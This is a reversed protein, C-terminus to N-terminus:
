GFAPQAFRKLQELEKKHYEIMAAEHKASAESAKAIRNQVSAGGGMQLAARANFTGAVSTTVASRSAMPDAGPMQRAPAAINTAAEARKKAANAVAADRAKEADALEKQAAAIKVSMVDNVPNQSDALAKQRAIRQAEIAPNSSTFPVPSANAEDQMTKDIEKAWKNANENEEKSAYPDGTGAIGESLIKRYWPDSFLTKKWQNWITTMWKLADGWSSSFEAIADIMYSGINSTIGSWVSLFGQWTEELWTTVRTWELKLAATVVAMAAAIDGVALADAIGGWATQADSVVTSVMARIGDVYGGIASAAARVPETNRALYLLGAGAATLAVGIAMAPSIAMGLVSALLQMGGVAFVILGHLGGVVTGVGAVIKGFAYIAAGAATMGLAVKVVTGILDANEKAWKKVQVIANTAANVFQTIKPAFVSSFGNGVGSVVSGLSGLARSLTHGAEADEKSMVLGLRKAEATLAGMEAIMPLIATGSRGFVKLAMAAKTTPNNIAAIKSAILNFQQDPSLARIDAFTLGLAAMTDTAEKGGDAVEQLFKQMKRVSKEVGEIETGTQKAAYKLASLKEVSMGTRAAMESLEDGVTAFHKAMAAIPAVIALGIGMMWKGVTAIGAGFDMLRRKATALGKILASNKCYLEVYARGQRVDSQGAM